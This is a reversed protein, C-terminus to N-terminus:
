GNWNTKGTVFFSPTFNKTFNKPINKPFNKAFNKASLKESRSGELYALVNTRCEWTGVDFM